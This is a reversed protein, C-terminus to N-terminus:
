YATTFLHTKLLRKFTNTNTTTQLHTPLSNWAAPGSFGFAREGFKTRVRPKWYSLGSASRLGTRTALAATTSVLDRMYDPCQQTHISHMMLCLKYQIRQNIPLWHLEKMASTIHDRSRTNTVLRAAANQARQLPRLTTQPLGALAANCYDLRSLVFASVLRKTVDPGAVRRIQRLRRLQFFCNSTVRNVHHKMTLEADLYVGLDRVVEVPTIVDGGVSLTLNMASIKRINAASGFWLLETKQANLQLRRSACWDRVELICKVLRERATDIDTVTTASYLQKDDAYLHHDVSNRVFVAVVDETYCIFEIAGLVSGQPVSCTVASRASQFGNVNISQTRDTLYSRFWSLAIDNVSFRNQLVELLIDHDVTDFAASLDLLVLPVVKGDDISCIIDNMLNVVATETNHNRRYASQKVPFLKNQEAHDVFRRATVREVLKSVFSLNSIPRYSNLDDADLSPKKLRPYVVAHKHLDPFKGSRMSANCMLSLIPALVTAARKVLWTPVPDLHCHKAPTRSLLRVIEAADVPRFNSLQSTSASRVGIEPAPASATAARIKNIKSAFHAAFDDASLTSLDCHEPQSLLKSVKRWLSRTDNKCSDISSTWYKTLKLQFLRRQDVLSTTWQLRDDAAKSTRYLKELRRTQKKAERCDADYWPASRAARVCVTRTPAHVDLLSRLTNDYHDFLDNVNDDDTSDLVLSSQELDEIFRDLDFQRWCRRVLHKKTHDQPVRLDVQAVITGHDSFTPPDVVASRVCLERRTIFVDLCHGANHTAGSVHQVLNQSELIDSFKITMPDTTDDLHINVDGAVMLSSAYASSRELLDAFEDFFQASAIVSGPRYLVVFLLTLTSGTLYVAVYEFTLYKVFVVRKAHLTRHYFLCVGGHNTLMSVDDANVRPRACEIFNFGPPSCAILDPCDRSDHWTEVAAALHLDKSTIWDCISASNAHV